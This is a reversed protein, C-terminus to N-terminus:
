CRFSEDGGGCRGSCRRLLHQVYRRPKLRIFLLQTSLTHSIWVVRFSMLFEGDEDGDVGMDLPFFPFLPFVQLHWSQLCQMIAVIMLSSGGLMLAVVKLGGGGLTGSGGEDGGGRRGGCLQSVFCFDKWTGERGMVARLDKM